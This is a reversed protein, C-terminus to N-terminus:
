FNTDRTDKNSESEEDSSIPNPLTHKKTEEWLTPALKLMPKYAISETKTEANVIPFQSDLTNFINLLVSLILALKLAGFVGGLFKNFGGLAISEAIKNLASALFLLAIVIGIFLVLYSLPQAKNASIGFKEILYSGVTPSFYRAGYIGLFIAMLSTLEKILGKFLGFIFGVAIPLIIILDLTNMTRKQQQKAFTSFFSNLSETPIEIKQLNTDHM